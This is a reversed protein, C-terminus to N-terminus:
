MRVPGIEPPVVTGSEVLSRTVALRRIADVTGWTHHGFASLIAFVALGLLLGARRERGTVDTRSTTVIPAIRM